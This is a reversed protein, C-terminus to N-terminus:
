ELERNIAAGTRGIDLLPKVYTNIFKNYERGPATSVYILDKDQLM